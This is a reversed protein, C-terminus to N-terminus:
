LKRVTCLCFAPLYDAFKNRMPKSPVHFKASLQVLLFKVVYLFTLNIYVRSCYVSVRVVLNKNVM